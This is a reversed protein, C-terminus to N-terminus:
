GAFKPASGTSKVETSDTRPQAAAAPLEAAPWIMVKDRNKIEVLAVEPSTAHSLTFEGTGLQLLKQLKTAAEAPTAAEVEVRKSPQVWKNEMVLLTLKSAKPPAAPAPAASTASLAVTAEM